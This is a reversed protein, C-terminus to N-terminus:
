RSASKASGAVEEADLQHLVLHGFSGEVVVFTLSRPNREL